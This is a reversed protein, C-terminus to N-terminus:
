MSIPASILFIWWHKRIMFVLTRSFACSPLEFLKALVLSSGDGDGGLVASVPSMLEASYLFSCSMSRCLSLSILIRKNSRPQLPIEIM